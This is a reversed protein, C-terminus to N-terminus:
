FFSLSRGGAEWQIEGELLTKEAVEWQLFRKKIPQLCGKKKSCSVFLLGALVSVVVLKMGGGLQRFQSNMDM